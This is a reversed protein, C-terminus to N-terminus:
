IFLRKELDRVFNDLRNQAVRMDEKSRIPTYLHVTVDYTNNRRLAHMALHFQHSRNKQKDPVM